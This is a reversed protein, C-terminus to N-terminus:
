IYFCYHFVIRLCGSISYFGFPDSHNSSYFTEWAKYLRLPCFSITLCAQEWAAFLRRAARLVAGSGESEKGGRTRTEKKKESQRQKKKLREGREIKRKKSKKKRQVKKKSWTETDIPRNRRTSLMLSNLSVYTHRQTHTHTHLASTLLFLLWHGCTDLPTLPQIPPSEPGRDRLLATM